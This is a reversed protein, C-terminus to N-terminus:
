TKKNTLYKIGKSVAYGIIGGGIVLTVGALKGRCYELKANDVELTMYADLGEMASNVLSERAEDSGDKCKLTDLTARMLIATTSRNGEMQERYNTFISM